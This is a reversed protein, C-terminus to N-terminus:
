EHIIAKMSGFTHFKDKVFIDVVNLGGHYKNLFEIDHSTGCTDLVIFEYFKGDIEVKFTDEYEYYKIGDVEEKYNALVGYNSEIGKKTATACVVKGQYTYWGFENVEFDDTTLGSETKDTSGCADGTYYNTLVIERKSPLQVEEIVEVEEVVEIIEIPTAEIPKEARVDFVLGILFGIVLAMIAILYSMAEIQKKLIATESVELKM